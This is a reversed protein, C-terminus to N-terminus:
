FKAKLSVTSTNQRTLGQEPNEGSAREFGIGIHHGPDLWYTVSFDALRHTRHFRRTYASSGAFDEWHTGAVTVQLASHLQAGLPFAALSLQAYSRATRGGQGSKLVNSATEYEVGVVPQMMVPCLDPGITVGIGAKSKLPLFTAKGFFGAGTTIWDHKYKLSVQEVWVWGQSLEGQQFLTTAGAQFNRQPSATLTQRHYEVVPGASWASEATTDGLLVTIAADIASSNGAASHVWQISAPNALNNKDAVSQALTVSASKAWAGLPDASPGAGAGRAMTAWACLWGLLLPSIRTKM